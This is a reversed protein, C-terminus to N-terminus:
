LRSLLTHIDIVEFGDIPLKKLHNAFKNDHTVLTGIAAGYVAHQLDNFDGRPITSKYYFNSYGQSLMVVAMTKIVPLELLQDSSKTKCETLLGALDAFKEAVYLCHKAWYDEFPEQNGQVKEERVEPWIKEYYNQHEQQRNDIEAESERAIERLVTVTKSSQNHMLSKLSIPPPELFSPLPTGIAYQKIVADIINQYRTLVQDHRGINYILRLREIAEFPATLIASTTEQLM